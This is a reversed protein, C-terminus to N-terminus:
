VFNVLDVDFKYFFDSNTGTTDRDAPNLSLSYRNNVFLKMEGTEPSISKYVQTTYPSFIFGADGPTKGQHGVIVYDTEANTDIYIQFNAVKGLYNKYETQEVSDSGLTLMMGVSPSCILFPNFFRHTKNLIKGYLKQAKYIISHVAGDFDGTTEPTLTTEPTAVEKIASILEDNMDEILTNKLWAAILQYGNEGYLSLIDQIFEITFSTEIKHDIATIFKARTELGFGPGKIVKNNADRKRGISIIHGSPGNLPQISCIQSALTSPYVEKILEGVLRDTPSIDEVGVEENLPILEMIKDKISNEIILNLQNKDM